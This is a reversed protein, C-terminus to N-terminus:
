ISKKIEWIPKLSFLQVASMPTCVESDVINIVLFQTLRFIM